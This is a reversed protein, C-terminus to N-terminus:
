GAVVPSCEIGRAALRDCFTSADEWNQFGRLRLRYFEDGGFKAYQVLWDHQGLDDPFPFGLGEGSTKRMVKRPM